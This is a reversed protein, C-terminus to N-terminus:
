MKFIKIEDNSLKKTWNQYKAQQMHKPTKRLKEGLTEILNIGQTKRRNVEM